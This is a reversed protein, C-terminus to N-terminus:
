HRTALVLFGIVVSLAAIALGYEVFSDRHRDWAVAFWAFGQILLAISAGTDRLRHFLWLILFPIPVVVLYAAELRAEATTSAFLAAGGQLLLFWGFVAALVALPVTLVYAAVRAQRATIKM